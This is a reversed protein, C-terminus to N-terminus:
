RTIKSFYINAGQGAALLELKRVLSRRKAALLSCSGEVERRLWAVEEGVEGEEAVKEGVEGVVEGVAVLWEGERDDRALSTDILHFEEAEQEESPLVLRGELADMWVEEEEEEKVMDGGKKEEEEEELNANIDLGAM